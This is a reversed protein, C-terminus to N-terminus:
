GEVRRVYHAYVRRGQEDTYEEQKVLEISEDTEAWGKFDLVSGRDTALVKLVQGVPIQKIARHANVLPMPCQLGRADLEQAIVFDKM